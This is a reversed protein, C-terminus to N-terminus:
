LLSKLNDVDIDGFLDNEIKPKTTLPKESNQKRAKNKQIRIKQKENLANEEIARMDLIAQFMRDEDINQEGLMRLHKKVARWEWINVSPHSLNRYGIKTYRDLEPDLFYIFSLNRPDWRFEYKKSKKSARDNRNIFAKLMPEYYTISEMSVGYDQVTRFETPLFDIKVREEDPFKQFGIDLIEQQWLNYPSTMIGSHVKQHYKNVILITLWKEFEDFTLSAKKESEYGDRQKVNSFTSGPLNHIENELTKNFSEIHAGDRPQGLRRFDTDIDYKTCARGVSSSRFEKANDMGLLKVSGWCPWDGEVGLLKLYNEKRNIAHALCMGASLISPANFSLYFGLVMRTVVDILTTLTPRGIPERYIPDVLTIDLPTHDIQGFSLARGGGTPIRGLKEGFRENAKKPNRKKAAEAQDVAEIRSRISNPHPSILKLQRCRLQIDEITAQISKREGKKLFVTNISQSIIEEVIPDIKKKGLNKRGRQELLSDTTQTAQYKEIWRYLTAPHLKNQKALRKVVQGDGLNDLAEKIIQYKNYAENWDRQPTSMTSGVHVTEENQLSNQEILDNREVTLYKGTDSNEVIINKLDIIKRITVQAGQYKATVGPQLHFEKNM